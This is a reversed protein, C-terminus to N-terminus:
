SIGIVDVGGDYVATDLFNTIISQNCESSLILLEM